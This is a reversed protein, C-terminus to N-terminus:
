LYKDFISTQQYHLRYIGLLSIRILNESINFFIRSSGHILNSKVSDWSLILKYSSLPKCRVQM